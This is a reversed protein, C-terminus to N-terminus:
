DWTISVTWAAHGNVLHEPALVSAAQCLTLVNAGYRHTGRKRRNPSKLLHTRSMSEGRDGEKGAKVTGSDVFVSRGPPISTSNWRQIIYTEWKFCIYDNSQSKHSYHEHIVCVKYISYLICCRRSESVSLLITSTLSRLQLRILVSREPNSQAFVGNGQPRKYKYGRQHAM